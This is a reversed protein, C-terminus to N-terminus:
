RRGGGRMAGGLKMAYSLNGFQNSNIFRHNAQNFYKRGYDNYGYGYWGYPFYDYDYPLYEDNYISNNYGEPSQEPYYNPINNYNNITINGPTKSKVTNISGLKIKKAGNSKINSFSTVGDINNEYVSGICLCFSFTSITVILISKLM